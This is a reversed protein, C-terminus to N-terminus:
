RNEVRCCFLLGVEGRRRISHCHDVVNVISSTLGQKRRTFDAGKYPRECTTGHVRVDAVTDIWTTVQRNLDDLDTFRATPWFNHKVYKIGSEVRGKTQARYPRCLQIGIGLRVTFNLFQRNWVPEGAADRGLVVLKTNDYLCTKPIGGFKAIANLHCRIFTETTPRSVFEVYMARSWSLVMVFGWVRRVKGDPTRYAFSGFDM